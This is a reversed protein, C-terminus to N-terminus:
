EFFSKNMNSQGLFAARILQEFLEVARATFLLTETVLPNCTEVLGGNREAEDLYMCM